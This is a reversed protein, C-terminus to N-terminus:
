HQLALIQNRNVESQDKEFLVLIIALFPFNHQSECKPLVTISESFIKILFARKLPYLYSRKKVYIWVVVREQARSFLLYCFGLFYCLITSSTRSLSKDNKVLLKEGLSDSYTLSVKVVQSRDALLKQRFSDTSYLSAYM